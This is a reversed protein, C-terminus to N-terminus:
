AIRQVSSETPAPAESLNCAALLVGLFVWPFIILTMVHTGGAAAATAFFCEQFFCEAIWILLFASGGVKV